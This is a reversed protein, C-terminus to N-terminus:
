LQTQTKLRALAAAVERQFSDESRSVFKEVKRRTEESVMSMAAAVEATLTFGAWKGPRVQDVRKATQGASSIGLLRLAAEWEPRTFKIPETNGDKM